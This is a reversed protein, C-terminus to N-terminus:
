IFCEKEKLAEMCQKYLEKAQSFKDHVLLNKIEQQIREPLLGFNGQKNDQEM